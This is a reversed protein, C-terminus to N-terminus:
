VGGTACRESKLEAAWHAPRGSRARDDGVEGLFRRKSVVRHLVEEHGNADRRHLRGRRQSDGRRPDGGPM